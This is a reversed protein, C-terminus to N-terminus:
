KFRPSSHAMGMISLSARMSFRLLSEISIAWSIALWADAVVHASLIISATSFFGLFRTRTIASIALDSGRDYTGKNSFEIAPELFLSTHKRKGKVPDFLPNRFHSDSSGFQYLLFVLHLRLVPLHHFSM